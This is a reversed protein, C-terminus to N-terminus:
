AACRSPRRISCLRPMDTPVDFVEALWAELAAEDIPQRSFAEANM